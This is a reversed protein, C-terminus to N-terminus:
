MRANVPKGGAIPAPGTKPMSNRYERGFAVAMMNIDEPMMKILIPANNSSGFSSLDGFKGLAGAKINYADAETPNTIPPADAQYTGARVDAYKEKLGKPEIHWAEHSMPFDFGWKSAINGVPSNVLENKLVGARDGIDLAFGYNHMSKGPPAVWKRAAAESGYKAVAAKYLAAQKDPSRYASNLPMNKGYVSKYENAMGLFNNWVKPNMGSVDVGKGLFYGLASGAKQAIAKAGTGITKATTKAVSAVQKAAAKAGSAIKDGSSQLFDSASSPDIMQKTFSGVSGMINYADKEPADGKGGFGFLSKIFGGTGKVAGGVAGGIAKNAGGFMKGGKLDNMLLVGDILLGLPIGIGPLLSTLGSAIELMGGVVDGKSFRAIGFALGMLSGIVPIKKLAVKGATKGIAKGGAKAAAGGLGKFVSGVVKFIDGMSKIGGVVGKVSKVANGIGKGASGFGKIMGGITNFEKFGKFFGQLTKFVKGGVGLSEIAKEGGKVVDILGKAGKLVKLPMTFFEMM